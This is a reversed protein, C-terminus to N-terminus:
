EAEDSEQEGEDSEGGSGEGHHLPYLEGRELFWGFLSLRRPAGPALPTVAHWRPVRFAFLTNFAPCHAVDGGESGSADRNAEMDVFLGGYEPRWVGRSLHYVVAISRSHRVGAVDRYARDDHAEIHHGAQTYAGASVVARRGPLLCGLAARAAAANPFATASRFAHAINNHTADEYASTDVWEEDTIGQNSARVSRQTLVAACAHVRM